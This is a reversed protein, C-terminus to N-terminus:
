CPRAYRLIFTCTYGFVVRARRLVAGTVACFLGPSAWLLHWLYVVAYFPLVLEASFMLVYLARFLVPLACFLLVPLNWFLAPAACFLLVCIAWCCYLYLGACCLALVAHSLVLM